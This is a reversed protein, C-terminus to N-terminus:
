SAKDLKFRVMLDKIEIQLKRKTTASVNIGSTIMQVTAAERGRKKISRNLDHTESKTQNICSLSKVAQLMKIAKIPCKLQELDGRSMFYMTRKTENGNDNTVEIKPRQIPLNFNNILEGVRGNLCTDEIDVPLERGIESLTYGAVLCALVQLQKSTMLSIKMIITPSNNFTNLLYTNATEPTFVDSLRRM